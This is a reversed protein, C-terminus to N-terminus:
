PLPKECHYKTDEITQTHEPLCCIDKIVLNMAHAACGNAFMQPCKRKTDKWASQMCSARDTVVSVVTEEDIEKLLTQLKILVIQDM